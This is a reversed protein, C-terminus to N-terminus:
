MTNIQLDRFNPLTRPITPLLTVMGRGTRMVSSPQDKTPGRWQRYMKYWIAMNNQIEQSFEKNVMGLMIVSLAARGDVLLDVIYEIV